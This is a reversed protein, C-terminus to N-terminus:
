SFDCDHVALCVRDYCSPSSPQRKRVIGHGEVFRVMSEEYNRAKWCPQQDYIRTAPLGDFRKGRDTIAVINEVVRCSFANIGRATVCGYRNKVLLIGIVVGLDGSNRGYLACSRAEERWFEVAEVEPNSALAGRRGHDLNEFGTRLEMDSRLRM